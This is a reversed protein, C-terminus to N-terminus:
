KIKLILIKIKKLLPAGHLKHDLTVERDRVSMV